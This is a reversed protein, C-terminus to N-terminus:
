DLPVITSMNFNEAQLVQNIQSLSLGYNQLKVPDVDVKVERVLGGTIVVSAIDPLRSLRPEIVDEALSQLQALSMNDGGSIGLQLIPMMNPDMKIVMPKDVEAPLYKEVIGIKERIDTAALDMDTGWNYQLIIISSGSSSVSQITKVNSLGALTGELTKSVQEVEEPGAGTYTTMVAAVPLKMEPLLNLGMKSYTFIGLMIIVAVLITIAVPRKVAFNVIKM